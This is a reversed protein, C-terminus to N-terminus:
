QVFFEGDALPGGDYLNEQIMDTLAQQPTYDLHARNCARYRNYDDKSIEFTVTLKTFTPEDKTQENLAAVLAERLTYRLDAESKKDLAEFIKEPVM